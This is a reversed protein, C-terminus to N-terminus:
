AGPGPVSRFFSLHLEAHRCHLATWEAATMPGFALHPRDPPADRLRGYSRRAHYLAAVTPVVDTALTGGAVGPLRSGPRMPRTLIPRKLARMILRAPWPTRMPVGDYCYDVWTALHNLSQGLTWRGSTTLTGAADAAALRDLEALVDDIREFRLRRRDARTRM